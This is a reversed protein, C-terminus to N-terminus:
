DKNLFLCFINIAFYEGNADVPLWRKGDKPYSAFEKVISARLLEEM